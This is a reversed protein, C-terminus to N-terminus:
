EDGAGLADNLARITPCPFIHPERFSDYCVSCALQGNKHIPVHVAVVADVAALVAPLDTRAHAIFACENRTTVHNREREFLVVPDGDYDLAEITVIGWTWPGPVLNETRARMGDLTSELDTM